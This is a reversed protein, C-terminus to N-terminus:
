SFDPKAASGAKWEGTEFDFARTSKLPLARGPGGPGFATRIGLADLHDRPTKHTTDDPPWPLVRAMGTLPAAPTTRLQQLAARARGSWRGLWGTPPRNKLDSAEPDPGGGALSYDLHEAWLKRRLLDVVESSTTGLADKFLLANVEVARQEGFPNAPLLLNGIDGVLCSDLSLGDLNASGVTAWTDDVIAVKSHVYIPLMRSGPQGTSEHTWRTFVGFRKPDQPTEGIGERIYTILRRQKWPYFWVDPAINLVVIVQLTSRNIMASLLADAIRNNTFYQNEIYIFDRAIAFARLYAELIGKEGKPLDTFRDETLTRVIQVSCTGDGGSTQPGPTHSLAPLLDGAGSNEWLLSLTEHVHAVAPGTIGIGVDHNPLGDSAGRVPADILHEHTDVYSQAFSAGMCIAHHSDVLALRAHMVGMNTLSQEFAQIGINPRGAAEFYRKAEDTSTTDDLLSFVAFLGDTGAVPLVLIGALIKVFPPLRYKHLLIRVDVGDDAAQLLLREPRADIVGAPRPHAADPVPSSFDFIVKVTEATADANFSPPLSFTLQSVLISEDAERFRTAAHTFVDKDLLVTVANGHSLRRAEGAGLTVPLGRAEAERVFFDGRLAPQDEPDPFDPDAFVVRGEDLSGPLSLHHISSISLERERIVPDTVVLTLRRQPEGREYNLEVEGASGTVASALRVGSGFLWPPGWLEVRVGPLGAPNGHEDTRDTVVRARM